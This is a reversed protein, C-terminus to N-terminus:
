EILKKMRTVFDSAEKFYLDFQEGSIEKVDRHAIMKQLRYFKRMTSSYKKELLKRNVFREELLDAVHDPSPPIVGAKMLVAHASDIVSWYLDVVGQLIHWKSNQLTVPARSYYNWVSEETPRIRGHALLIQVPEFLGSDVLPYGDRLMNIVIPDGNRVYEWFATLRMTTIHLRRSVRNRIKTILIKYTHSLERSFYMSVDDVIILVDIDSKETDSKKAKSGFLIISKVFEKLEKHVQRAFEYAAKVDESPYAEKNQLERKKVKFDLEYGRKVM